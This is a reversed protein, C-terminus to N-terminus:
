SFTAALLRATAALLPEDPTATPTAPKTSLVALVLPPRHPPWALALDNATGHAGTGTKDALTWSPPLGARLRHAGTTCARLWATLRARQPQPLADGLTLRAFTRALASPTTTDTERDPEASNLDPEWRDLRTVPDGLSRCLRTVATPGGLRRLLLNAATNDSFEIAAACLEAVTLARTRGTVPAYGSDAVDRDTYHVAAALDHGDRLVAAVALPKFTSCLPFREDARHHVTTGTGTDHAFVGLRAGHIRELQRLRDVIQDTTTATTATANPLAPLAPLPLAAAATLLHRRTPHPPM